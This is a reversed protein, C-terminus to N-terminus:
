TSTPPRTTPGPRHATPATTKVSTATGEDLYLARVSTPEAPRPLIVRQLLATGAPRVSMEVTGTAGGRRGKDVTSTVGVVTAALPRRIRSCGPPDSPGDGWM